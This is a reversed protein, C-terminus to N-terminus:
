NEDNEERTVRLKVPSVQINLKDRLTRSLYRIDNGTLSEPNQAVVEFTIPNVDVQELEQIIVQIAEGSPWSLSTKLDLVTNVLEERDFTSYMEDRVDIATRFIAGLGRDTKGSTFLVPAYELFYLRDRLHYLWRDEADENVEDAKNVLIICGRYRDKILGAIRQDQHTIRENWDLVLGVVDSYNIARLAGYVIEQDLTNEVKNKRIMGGTDVLQFRRGEADFSISVFDRTTGPQDSVMVREYGLISNFLTSKGTNPRGVLSVHIMGPDDTSYNENDGRSEPLQDTVWQRM